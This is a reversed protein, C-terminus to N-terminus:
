TFRREIEAFYAEAVRGFTARDLAIAEGIAISAVATEAKFGVTSDPALVGDHALISNALMRVENLPNGDKGELGRQRHVFSLELVLVMNAFFEADFATRRAAPTTAADLADYAALQADVRARCANVYETPYTKVALM